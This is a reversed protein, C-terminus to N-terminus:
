TFAIAATCHSKAKALVLCIFSACIKLFPRVMMSGTISDRLDIGFAPLVVSALLQFVIYLTISILLNSLILLGIGKFKKLM